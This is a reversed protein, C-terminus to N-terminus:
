KSTNKTTTKHDTKPKNTIIWQIPSISFLFENTTLWFKIQIIISNPKCCFQAAAFLLEISYITENRQNSQFFEFTIFCCLANLGFCAIKIFSIQPYLEIDFITNQTWYFQDLNSIEPIALIQPRDIFQMSSNGPISPISSLSMWMKSVIIKPVYYEPHTCQSQVHTWRQESLCRLSICKVASSVLM